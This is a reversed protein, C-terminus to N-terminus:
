GKSKKGLKGASAPCESKPTEEDFDRECGMLHRNSIGDVVALFNLKPDWASHLIHTPRCMRHTNEINIGSRTRGGM